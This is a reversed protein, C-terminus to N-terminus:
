RIKPPLLRFLRESNETLSLCLSEFPVGRLEALKQAIACLHAPENRKGRKGQPSLYPSDTEIVVHNIDVSAAAEQIHNAKKFTMIGSFSLYFGLATGRQAIGKDGTFCHLVAGINEAHEQVRESKFLDFTKEWADRTHVVLPLQKRKALRIQEILAHCQEKHTSHNYYFDLGMEGLGVVKPHDAMHSLQELLADDLDKADHPHLGVTAWLFPHKEALAVARRSSELGTGIVIMKQVGAALAREIMTERDDDFEADAIHCHTDILM